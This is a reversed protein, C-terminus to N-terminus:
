AARDEGAIHRALVDELRDVGAPVELQWMGVNSIFCGAGRGGGWGRMLGDKSSYQKSLACVHQTGPWCMRWGTWGLLCRWSGYAHIYAAMHGGQGRLV